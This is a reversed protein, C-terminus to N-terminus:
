RLGAATYLQSLTRRYSYFYSRGDPTVRFTGISYVGSADPPQLKKWLQRKGTALEIQSVEAPVEGRRFIWLLRGDASWAVPRDGGHSSALPTPAGGAVPWLSIGGQSGIAAVRQGDPSVVLGWTDEETLPSPAGGDIDQVYSRLRGGQRTGNFLVRKGDPFWQAGRYAVIGHAPLPQPDGPGAPLIMLRDSSATTALIRSGEPSIDDAFGEKLGLYVPPSGDTRRLYIGFRDAFLLQRGDDSVDALGASDFWSLDREATEGPPVGLVASREEDRTLLVRGGREIDCLSLSAPTQLLLRERGRLDVARLARNTRGDGAAFWVEDGAPSWALGSVSPWDQSLPAARGELDVVTVRGGAGRGTPDEVFAIRRGDRSFRVFRVSGSTHHLVRGPPYELSMEGGVAPSRAIALQRGDLDWDADEVDTAVERPTGEGIPAEGLTGVFREGVVFRRGLSLALKGARVALVESGQYGLLRSEPGDPGALWWVELPRGERAESYVVAGGDSIFRAGAIRGRRFTLQEFSPPPRRLALAAWWTAAAVLAIGLVALALRRRTLLPREPPAPTGGDLLLQLQFALDRASEFREARNKELCRGVVAAVAPTLKDGTQVLSPPDESLVARSTEFARTRRFAPVGALMEYLVAGLAFLDTRHDVPEGLMQEPSMYGLTGHIVGPATLDATSDESGSDAPASRMKVLGFDLLKVRGDSTLFTNGPKVDRHWIGKEHAAALAHAIQIGYELAKRYPLPGRALRSALTEGHLLESVVYPVGGETGVDLVAVINPHNLGGAARAELSLREAHQPTIALSQHLIKIAVDRRLRPDRAKYVEGMGGAGLPAVIEYPGLRSGPALSFQAAAPAQTGRSTM